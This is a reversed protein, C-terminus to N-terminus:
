AWRLCLVADRYSDIWIGGAVDFYGHVRFTSNITLLNQNSSIQHRHEVNNILISLGIGTQSWSKTNIRLWRNRYGNRYIRRTANVNSHFAVLIAIRRSCAPLDETVDHSGSQPATILSSTTESMRAASDQSMRAEAARAQGRFVNVQNTLESLNNIRVPTVGDPVTDVRTFGYERMKAAWFAEDQTDQSLVRGVTLAIVVVMLCVILRKTMKSEKDRAAVMCGCWAFPIFCSACKNM